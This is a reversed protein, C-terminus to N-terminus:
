ELVTGKHSRDKKNVVVLEEELSKLMKSVGQRSVYLKDAASQINGQRYVELFYEMQKQNM